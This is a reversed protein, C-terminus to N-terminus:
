ELFIPHVGPRLRLAPNDWNDKPTHLPTPGGTWAHADLTEPFNDFRVPNSPTENISSDTLPKPEPDVEAPPVYRRDQQRRELEKRAAWLKRRVANRQRELKSLVNPGESNQIYIAGLPYQLDDPSLAAHRIHYFECEVRDYRRGLWTAHVLQTEDPGVPRFHDEYDRILYEAPDEGPLVDTASYIARNPRERPKPRTGFKLANRSSTAKGAATRPGTSHQTPL